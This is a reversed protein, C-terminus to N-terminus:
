GSRDTAHGNELRPKELPGPQREQRRPRGPSSYRTPPRSPCAPSTEWDRRQARQAQGCPCFRRQADPGGAALHRDRAKGLRFGRYAPHDAVTVTHGDGELVFCLRLPGAVDQAPDGPVTPPGASTPRSGPTVKKVAGCRRWKTTGSRLSARSVQCGSRGAGACPRPPACAEPRPRATRAEAVQAFAVVHHVLVVAHAPELADGGLRHGPDGAVVEVDRVAVRVHEVHGVVLDRLDHPVHARGPSCRRQGLQAASAPLVDLAPGPARRALHGAFQQMQVRM